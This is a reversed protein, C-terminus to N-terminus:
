ADLAEVLAAVAADIQRGANASIENAPVRKLAAVGDRMASTLASNEDELEELEEKAVFEDADMEAREEAAWCLNEGWTAAWNAYDAETRCRRLQHLADKVNEESSCDLRSLMRSPPALAFKTMANM